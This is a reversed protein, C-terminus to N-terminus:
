YLLGFMWLPIRNARSNEIEDIALYSNEIDKIQDFNKSKGGVEFLYKDNIIFDGKPPYNVEYGSNRLQNFFFTERKTGEDIDQELAYMINTNDCYIKDPRSLNKLNAKESSLLNLLQADKLAYLMKLGNNRDSDLQAYLKTMNPTQPCSSSLVHLMKKTKQITSYSVNNVAQYDTHLVVNIMEILRQEYGASIEKYFPYYGKKLYNEFHRLVNINEYSHCIDTHKLLLEDLSVAPCYNIGEFQLYERFSLGYLKYEIRRRSLDASSYNIKLLSSGSYVIHLNKFDDYINKLILQWKPLYHIEDIFIHTGGMQNHLECIEYLSKEDFWATDLTVYIAADSNFAEKMRQLMLTTKGVGRPGTISILRDNWDISSYLSRKILLNTEQVKKNSLDLLRYYEKLEM